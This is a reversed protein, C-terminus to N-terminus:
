RWYVKNWWNWINQNVVDFKGLNLERSGRTVTTLGVNLNQAIERQSKNMKLQHIIEMRKLLRHVEGQSFLGDLFTTLDQENSFQRILKALLKIEQQHNM